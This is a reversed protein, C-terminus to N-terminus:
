LGARDKAESLDIDGKLFSLQDDASLYAVKGKPFGLSEIKADGGLDIIREAITKPKADQERTKMKDRQADIADKATGTPEHAPREKLAEAIKLNLGALDQLLKRDTDAPLKKGTKKVLIANIKALDGKALVLGAFAKRPEEPSDRPFLYPM